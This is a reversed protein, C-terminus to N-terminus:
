FQLVVESDGNLSYSPSEAVCATPQGDQQLRRFTALMNHYRTHSGAWRAESCTSRNQGVALSLTGIAPVARDAYQIGRKM